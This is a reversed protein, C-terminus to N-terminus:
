KKTKTKNKLASAIPDGPYARTHQGPHSQESFHGTGSSKVKKSGSKKATKSTM